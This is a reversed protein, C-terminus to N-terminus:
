VVKPCAYCKSTFVAFVIFLVCCIRFVDFKSQVASRERDKEVFVTCISGFAAIFRHAAFFM